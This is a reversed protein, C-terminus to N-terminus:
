SRFYYNTGSINKNEKLSFMLTSGVQCFYPMLAMELRFQDVRGKNHEKTTASDVEMTDSSSAAEKEDQWAEQSCM